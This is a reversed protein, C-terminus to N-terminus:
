PERTRVRNLFTIKLAIFIQLVGEKPFSTFGDAGQRLVKRRALYGKLYSLSVSLGFKAVMEQGTEGLKEVLHRKQLWPLFTQHIFRSHNSSLHTAFYILFNDCNCPVSKVIGGRLM